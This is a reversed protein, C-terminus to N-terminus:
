DFNNETTLSSDQVQGLSLILEFLSQLLFKHNLKLGRLLLYACSSGFM